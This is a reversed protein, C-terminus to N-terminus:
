PFYFLIYRLVQLIHDAQEQKAYASMNKIVQLAKQVTERRVLSYNLLKDYYVPNSCIGIFLSNYSNYFYRSRNLPVESKIM